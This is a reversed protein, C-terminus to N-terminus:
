SRVYAIGDDRQDLLRSAQKRAYRVYHRATLYSFRTPETGFVSRYHQALPVSSTVDVHWMWAHYAAKAGVKIVRKILWEM